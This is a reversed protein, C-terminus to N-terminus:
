YEKANMVVSLPLPKESDEIRKKQYYIIPLLFSVSYKGKYRKLVDKVELM